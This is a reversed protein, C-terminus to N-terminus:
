HAAIYDIAKDVAPSPKFSKSSQALVSSLHATLPVEGRKTRLRVKLDYDGYSTTELRFTGDETLSRTRYPDYYSPDLEFTALYADSPPNQVELVIRYHKRGGADVFEPEGKEDTEFKATIRPANEASM